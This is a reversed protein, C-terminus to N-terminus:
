KSKAWKHRPLFVFLGVLYIAFVDKIAFQLTKKFVLHLLYLAFSM